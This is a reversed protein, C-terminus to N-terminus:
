GATSHGVARTMCHPTSTSLMNHLSTFRACTDHLPTSRHSVIRYSDLPTLRWTQGQLEPLLAADCEEVSRGACAARLTNKGFTVQVPSNFADEM